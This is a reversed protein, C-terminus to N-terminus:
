SKSEECYHVSTKIRQRVLSMKTVIGSVEIEDQNM